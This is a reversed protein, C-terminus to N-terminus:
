GLPQDGLLHQIALPDGSDAGEQFASRAEELRGQEELLLGLNYYCHVDGATAGLRFYEEAGQLDGYHDWLLNALAIYSEVEGNRAGTRLLDAAENTRASGALLEALDVRAAPFLEVAARLEPELGPDHTADWTWCARIARAHGDGLGEARKALEIARDLLGVAHARFALELAAKGDGADSAASYATEAGPLGASDLAWGLNFWADADGADAAAQFADVAEIWKEQAALANGLNILAWSQGGDVAHRFLKEADSYSGVDFLECGLDVVHAWDDSALLVEARRRLVELDYTM